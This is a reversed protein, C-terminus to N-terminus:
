IYKKQWIVVNIFTQKAMTNPTWIKIVQFNCRTKVIKAWLTLILTIVVYIRKNSFHSNRRRRKGSAVISASTALPRRSQANESRSLTTNSRSDIRVKHSLNLLSLSLYPFPSPLRYRWNTKKKALKVLLFFPSGILLTGVTNKLFSLNQFSRNM